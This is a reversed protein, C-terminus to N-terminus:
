IVGKMDIIRQVTRAVGIASKRGYGPVEHHGTEKDLKLNFVKILAEGTAQEEDVTM